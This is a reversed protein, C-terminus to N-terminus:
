SWLREPYEFIGYLDSCCCALECLCNCVKGGAIYPTLERRRQRAQRFDFPLSLLELRFLRVIIHDCDETCTHQMKM